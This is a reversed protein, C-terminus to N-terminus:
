PRGLRELVQRVLDDVSKGHLDADAALDAALQQEFGPPPDLAPADDDLWQRLDDDAAPDTHWVEQRSGPDPESLMPAEDRPAEAEPEGAAHDEHRLPDEPAPPEDHAYGPEEHEPAPEGIHEDDPHDFTETM